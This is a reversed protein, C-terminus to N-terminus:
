PRRLLFLESGETVIAQPQARQGHLRMELARVRMGVRASHLQPFREVPAVIRITCDRWRLLLKWHFDRAEISVIEGEFGLVAQRLAVLHSPESTQWRWFPKCWPRFECVSCVEGPTALQEATSVKQLRSIHLRSESGVRQCVEPEVSVPYNTGTLLYIVEGSKPWEGRTEHWLLAYLQLQREYREPLDTRLASKYDVLCTGEPRHEAQDIRGYLLGDSSKVAVEVEVFLMQEAEVNSENDQKNQAHMAWPAGTATGTFAISGMRVIRLAEAIVREVALSVRAEDRPLWRERPHKAREEEQIQLERLFRRRAEEVKEADSAGIPPDEVISQLTRHLATGVRAAYGIRREYGASAEFCSRLPCSRMIELISPGFPPLPRGRPPWMADEDISWDFGSTAENM